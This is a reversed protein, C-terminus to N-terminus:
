DVVRAGYCAFSIERATNAVGEATPPAISRLELTVRGDDLPLEPLPIWQPRDGIRGRWVVAGAHRVELERPTVGRVQLEVRARARHPWTELTVGGEGACWAWRWKSNWEAVAWRADTELVHHSYWAGQAPLHHPTGPIALTHIATFLSLNGALLWLLAARDRVVRVNFALTLPLLVRVAAGPFGGWVAPGLCACLVAYAAGVRWWPCGPRPRWALYAVQATLAVHSLVTEWFFRPNGAQEPSRLLELWRGAWGAFPWSLNRQGASSGGVAHRVYLLWLLLPLVVAALRLALPGLRRARWESRVSPLLAAAGLVATERALGALGLLGAAAAPRQREVLLIGGATLLLAALDTLALRVSFIVGASFLVFIWALAGRWEGVPFLRWLLLALGFWLLINLWAYAHAIGVPDGGGLVWAVAGLLIRRARYGLDDVAPRLAPDTLGPSTAIQAYYGGYYSGEEPYVYIRADRFSPIADRAMLPDIQLLSTLGHRPHWYQAFVWAFLVLLGVRLLRGLLVPSLFPLLRQLMPRLGSVKAVPGQAAIGCERVSPRNPRIHKCRNAVAAAGARQLFFKGRGAKGPKKAAEIAIIRM